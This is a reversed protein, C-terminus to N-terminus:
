KRKFDKQNSKKCYGSNFEDEMYHYDMLKHKSKLLGWNM